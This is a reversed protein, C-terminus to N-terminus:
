EKKIRLEGETSELNEKRGFKGVERLIRMYIKKIMEDKWRLLDSIFHSRGKGGEDRGGEREKWEEQEEEVAM